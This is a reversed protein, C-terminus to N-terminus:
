IIIESANSGITVKLAMEDICLICIKEHEQMTKVNEEMYIFFDDLLGPECTIQKLHRKLTSLSPLPYNKKKRLLEYATTGCKYYLLIADMITKTSWHMSQNNDPDKIKEIQDKNFVKSLNDMFKIHQAEMDELVKIRDLLQQYDKANPPIEPDIPILQPLACEGESIAAEKTDSPHDSTIVVEESLVQNVDPLNHNLSEVDDGGSAAYSHDALEIPASSSAVPEGSEEERIQSPRLYLRPIANPKLTQRVRKRGRSREPPQFDSEMFHKACVVTSKNPTFNVRNIQQLWLRRLGISKPFAYLTYKPGKCSVSGSQCNWVCCTM